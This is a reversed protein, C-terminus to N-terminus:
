PKTLERSDRDDYRGAKEHNTAHFAQCTECFYARVRWSARRHAMRLAHVSGYGRKTCIPQEDRM